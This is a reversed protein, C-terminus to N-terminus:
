ESNAALQKFEEKREQYEEMTLNYVVSHKKDKIEAYHVAHIFREAINIKDLPTVILIQLNLQACFEMLFESKEPDLKSFAEDITIFRLSKQQKGIPYIGFQHAIAAGLIAYTFQAKQGGSYSATNEHYQGPKNEVVSFERANFVLWNRIDTVKKRWVEEKHLETILDKIKNFVTERYAENKEDSFEITNPIASSLQEKFFRIEPQKNVKWELQLYSDPNKNFTIKKLPVNLEAIVEKIKEEETSLWTRYSTLADLMSHDMYEKFRRKHEILRQTTINKHLDELEFLSSLDPRFQEVDGSWGPFERLIKESPNVFSAILSNTALELEKLKKQKEDSVQKITNNLERRFSELAFLSAPESNKFSRASIFERIATVGENTLDETNINLLRQNKENFDHDLKSIDGVYGDRTDRKEKLKEDVQKLQNIVTQYKDSSKKLDEVKRSIAEIREAHKKWNLEGFIKIEQLITLLPRKAELATIEPELIRIQKFLDAHEHEMRQKESMLLQITEKNDWGLTYDMRSWRGPRDDKEHRGTNRILGNSTIVKSSGYFVEMDDTCYYNYRDLLQQELWKTFVGADKLDIKNLMADDDVPWRVLSQAPKRDIKQYVLRARLNNTHVFHNVQKIYQEPVMLQMSFNHLVRQISDEWHKEDEKVRLLEGAFPLQDEGINLLDLLKNRVTILEPPMRNKRQSFSTITEQTAEIQTVLKQQEAKYVFRNQSLEELRTEIETKLETIIQQNDGFSSETFDTKLGLNGALKVYEQQKLKKADRKESENAIDKEFLQVQSDINLSGKQAQLQEQEIEYQSIETNVEKLKIKSIETQQEIAEIHKNLLDQELQDSFFPLQQEIFNITKIEHNVEDLLTKNRIIPALMDLQKEDKQIAKHSILLDNYHDYLIKFQEEANPEELMQNRIFQTLDGLVKIGVTQNFLSLAKEKLGFLDSFRAAYDRFSDYIETKPFQKQLKRKWEGRLDFNNEGFNEKITLPYQSVIFVKKMSGGSYWRVQALTISHQIASNQFCALLVSYPNDKKHRLQETKSTEEADSYTRGFYGWFYSNEDREKKIEAGSSQNYFRKNSPVLLTLIADILTTKGSGNSGTLLSTRGDTKLRFVKKHFTGWNFVELYRLRYGVDSTNSNFLNSV